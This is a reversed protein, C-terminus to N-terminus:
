GSLIVTAMPTREPDTRDVAYACYDQTAPWRCATFMRWQSLRELQRLESLEQDHQRDMLRYFGPALPNGFRRTAPQFRNDKYPNGDYRMSQLGLGSVPLLM